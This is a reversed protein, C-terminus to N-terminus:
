FRSNKTKAYLTVTSGPPPLDEVTIYFRASLRRRRGGPSVGPIRATTTALLEGTASHVEVWVRPKWRRLLRISGVIHLNGREEHADVWSVSAASRDEVLHIGLSHAAVGPSHCGVLVATAGLLIACAGRLRTESDREMKGRGRTTTEIGGRDPITLM